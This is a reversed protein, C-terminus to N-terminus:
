TKEETYPGDEVTARIRHYLGERLDDPTSWQITNIQKIDFHARKFHERKCTHIVPLGLGRAFGAELYVGGRNGTFDAVVFPAARINGLIEDMIFDNHQETDVRMVHYGSRSIAPEIAERYVTTMENHTKKDGYWMAVFAPNTRSSSGTTLQGFRHWGKSTLAINGNPTPEVYGEDRLYKEHAKAEDVSRAFAVAPDNRLLHCEHGAERSMRALNCLTRDLREPVSKPWGSRLLEDVNTPIAKPVSPYTVRRFQLYLPPNGKIQNERILASLRAKHEQSIRRPHMVYDDHDCHEVVYAGCRCDSYRYM